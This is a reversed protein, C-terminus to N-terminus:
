LAQLWKLLSDDDRWVPKRPFRESGSTPPSCLKLAEEKTRITIEAYRNTTELSVHGLWARIVNVEVGSELLHVATSHRWLHPSITRRRGDATKKVIHQAHRRVIKYLGFRTLARGQRCTFVPRDAAGDTTQQNMLRKLWSATENWLPCIRWKDGKGHLHVRPHPEFEVNSVRLDAVEQVRAGTNYFFLLLTRDRLALGGRSPLTAFISEVEDRELFFTEAPQVRKTPIAAVKQAQALRDPLQRGLFEFFTRLAALRHNRSRVNNARTEELFNLFRCVHDATLDDLTLRTIKCALVTSVFKLFLRLADAYSRLSHPRLGKQLKLYDDFFSYLISGVTPTTM